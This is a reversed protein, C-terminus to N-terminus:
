NQYRTKNNFRNKLRELEGDYKLMEFDKEIFYETNWHRWRDSMRFRSYDKIEGHGFTGGRHEVDIFGRHVLEKIARYFTSNSMGLENAESYSFTLGDNEYVRMKRGAIRTDRWPRKQTFRLFVWMANRPLTRFADSEMMEPEVWAKRKLRHRGM